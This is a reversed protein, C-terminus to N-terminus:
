YGEASDYGPDENWNVALFEEDEKDLPSHGHQEVFKREEERHRERALYQQQVDQKWQERQELINESEAGMEEIHRDVIAQQSLEPYGEPQELLERATEDMRRGRELLIAEPDTEPLPMGHLFLLHLELRDIAENMRLRANMAQPGNGQIYSLRRRLHEVRNNMSAIASDRVEKAEPDYRRRRAEQHVYKMVTNKDIGFRDAIERYDLGKASLAYCWERLADKNAPTIRV